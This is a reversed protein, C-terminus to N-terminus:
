AFWLSMQAASASGGGTRIRELKKEQAFLSSADCAAFVLACCFIIRCIMM